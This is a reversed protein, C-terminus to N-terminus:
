YGEKLTLEFADGDAIPTKDVGTMVKQGGKTLCWWQKKSDDARIGEVTHVFLGFTGEDGEIIKKETLIDGLYEADTKLRHEKVTEGNAVVTVTISKNGATTQPRFLFYAGAMLGIVIIFVPILWLVKKNKM